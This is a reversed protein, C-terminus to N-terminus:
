EIRVKETAMLKKAVDVPLRITAVQTDGSTQRLSAISEEGVQITRNLCHLSRRKM